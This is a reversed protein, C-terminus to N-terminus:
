LRNINLHAIKLGRRLKPFMYKPGGAENPTDNITKGIIQDTFTNPFLCRICDWRASPKGLEEYEVNSMGICKTHYWSDCCDCLIAKTRCGKSCISCPDKERRTPGPNLQIDGSLLILYWACMSLNTLRLVNRLKDRRSLDKRLGSKSVGANRRLDNRGPYSKADLKLSLCAFCAKCKATSNVKYWQTSQLILTLYVLFIVSCLIQRRVEM